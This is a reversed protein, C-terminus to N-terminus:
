PRPSASAPPVIEVADATEVVDIPPHYEIPPGDDHGLQDLWAFLTRISGGSLDPEGLIGERTRRDFHIRAVALM